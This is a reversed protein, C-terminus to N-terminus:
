KFELDTANVELTFLRHKEDRRGEKGGCPQGLFQDAKKTWIGIRESLQM